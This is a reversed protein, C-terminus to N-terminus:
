KGSPGPNSERGHWRDALDEDMVRTHRGPPRQYGGRFEFHHDALMRDRLLEGSCRGARLRAATVYDLLEGVPRWEDAPVGPYLAAYEPRLRAQRQVAQM